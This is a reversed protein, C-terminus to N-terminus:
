VAAVRLGQGSSKGYRRILTTLAHLSPQTNDFILESDYSFLTRLDHPFHKSEEGNAKLIMALQDDLNSARLIANARRSERNANAVHPFM